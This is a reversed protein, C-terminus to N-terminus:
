DDLIKLVVTDGALLRGDECLCLEPSRIQDAIWKFWSRRLRIQLPWTPARRRRCKCHRIYVRKAWNTMIVLYIEKKMTITRECCHTETELSVFDSSHMPTYGKM